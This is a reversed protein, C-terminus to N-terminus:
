TRPGVGPGDGHEDAVDPGWQQDGRRKVRLGDAGRGRSAVSAPGIAGSGFRARIRDVAGDTARDASRPPRASTVSGGPGADLLSLQEAAGEHLTSVSLGLLRVGPSPDIDAVLADAASRLASGADVPGPLTVSRTITRFDHFRVKVTVTRGALGHERLRAAVADSLRVLERHIEDARHRDAAFTEEHSISKVRHHPEVRRPDVGRALDHLHRGAASGLAGVVVDLPLRALDGVTTVGLRSLRGYTAPGVGWLSRVPLPHLFELVGEATVVAVGRGPVPGEPSPRPKASESALKAVFKTPAVGVSCTLGEEDLVRRRIRHGIEEAPWRGAPRADDGGHLRLAGGVDLFAEDLSLPEVLPTFSGFIAMVRRSVESYRAYRGPLFLAHPCLRRARVAPMASHIGYARAEYSAAAVVGRPGSGGVVVPTGRLDPRDLLEVSVFFADMDVHLITPGPGVEGSGADAAPSTM